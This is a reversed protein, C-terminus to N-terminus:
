FEYDMSTYSIIYIDLVNLLFYPQLELIFGPRSFEQKDDKFHLWKNGTTWPCGHNFVVKTVLKFYKFSCEDIESLATLLM